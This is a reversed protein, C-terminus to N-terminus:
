NKVESKLCKMDKCFYFEENRQTKVYEYKSNLVKGCNCCIHEKKNAM